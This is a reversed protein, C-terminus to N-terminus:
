PCILTQIQLPYSRIQLQQGSTVWLWWRSHALDPLYRAGWATLYGGDFSRWGPAASLWSRLAAPTFGLAAARDEASQIDPNDPDTLDAQVLHFAGYNGATLVFSGSQSSCFVHTDWTTM